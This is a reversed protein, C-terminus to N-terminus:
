VAKNLDIEIGAEKIEKAILLRWAGRSDIPIYVIGQCNLPIEAGEKYLVCVRKQGLKGVFYGFEFIINQSVRAQGEMTKDQPSAIDGTTFLLVAFDINSFQGFKEVISAGGEPQEHFILARLGLREIFKSLSEKAVEDRGYILLSNSRLSQSQNLVPTSPSEEKLLRIKDSVEKSPEERQLKENSVIEKLLKKKLLKEGSPKEIHPEEVPKGRSTIIEKPQMEKPQIEKPREQGILEKALKQEIIEETKDEPLLKLRQLLSELRVIQENIDDKFYKEKLSFTIASSMDFSLDINYEEDSLFESPLCAFLALNNELWNTRREQANELDMMSFIKQNKIDRGKEIQGGIRRIAEEKSVAPILSSYIKSAQEKKMSVEEKM